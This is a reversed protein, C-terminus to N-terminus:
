GLGMRTTRIKHKAFTRLRGFMATLPKYNHIVAQPLLQRESYLLNIMELRVAAHARFCGESSLRVLDPCECCLNPAGM